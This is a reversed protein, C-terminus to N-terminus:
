PAPAGAEDADVCASSDGLEMANGGRGGEAARAHPEVYAAVAPDRLWANFAAWKKPESRLWQYWSDASPDTGGSGDPPEDLDPITGDRALFRAGCVEEYRRPDGKWVRGDVRVPKWALREDAWARNHAEVAYRMYFSPYRPETEERPPDSDDGCAGLLVLGALLLFLSVPRLARRGGSGM